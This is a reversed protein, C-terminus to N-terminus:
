EALRVRGLLAGAVVSIVLAIAFAGVIRYATIAIDSWLYGESASQRIALISAIPGPLVQAGVFTSVAQWALGLLVLSAAVYLGAQVRRQPARSDAVSTMAPCNPRAILWGDGCSFHRCKRLLQWSCLASEM